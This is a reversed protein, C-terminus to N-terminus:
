RSLLSFTQKNWNCATAAVVLHFAQQCLLWYILKFMEFVFASTPSSHSMSLLLWLTNNTYKSLHHADRLPKFTNHHIRLRNVTMSRHIRTIMMADSRRGMEFGNFGLKNSQWLLFNFFSERVNLVCHAIITELKRYFDVRWAFQRRPNWMTSMFHGSINPAENFNLRIQTIREQRNFRLIQQKTSIIEACRLQRADTPSPSITVSFDRHCTDCTKECVDEGLRGPFRLVFM